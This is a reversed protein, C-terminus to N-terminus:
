TLLTCAKYELSEAAKLIKLTKQGLTSEAKTQSKPKNSPGVINVGTTHSYVLQQMSVKAENLVMTWLVKETISNKIM